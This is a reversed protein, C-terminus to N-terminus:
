KPKLTRGCATTFRGEDGELKQLLETVSEISSEVLVSNTTLLMARLREAEKIATLVMLLSYDPDERDAWRLILKRYEVIGSHLMNAAHISLQYPFETDNSPM